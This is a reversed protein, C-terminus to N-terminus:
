CAFCCTFLLHNVVPSQRLFSAAKLSASGKEGSILHWAMRRRVRRQRLVTFKNMGGTLRGESLIEVTRWAAGPLRNRGCRASAAGRGEIRRAISEFLM